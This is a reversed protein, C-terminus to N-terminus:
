TKRTTTPPWRSCTCRGRRREAAPVEDSLADVAAIVAKAQEVNVLGAALATRTQEYPGDLVHAFGVAARAASRTVGTTHALWAVTSPHGSEKGIDNRDAAALVRATLEVVRASLSALDVLAKAQEAPTMAWAQAPSHADLQDLSPHVAGIFRPIAHGSQETTTDEPIAM